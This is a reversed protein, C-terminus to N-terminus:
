TSQFARLKVLSKQGKAVPLLPTNPPSPLHPMTDPWTPSKLVVKGGEMGDRLAVELRPKPKVKDRQFETNEIMPLPSEYIRKRLLEVVEPSVSGKAVELITRGESDRGHVDAGNELLIRVVEPCGQRVAELFTPQLRYAKGTKISAGGKLLEVAASYNSRCQADSLATSGKREKLEADAGAELLLRILAPDGQCAAIHLPTQSDEAPENPSIGADLLMKTIGFDFKFVSWHLATYQNDPDQVALDCNPERMAARLQDSKGQKAFSWLPLDSEDPLQRRNTSGGDVDSDALFNVMETEGNQWAVDFPTRGIADTITKKAGSSLLVMAVELNGIRSAEHLPTKGLFGRVNPDLGALILLSIIESPTNEISCAHHLLSNSRRDYEKVDPCHNLISRVVPASGATVAWSMATEDDDDCLRIDGGYQLLLDVAELYGSQAALILPSAGTRNRANIDERVGKNMLLAELIKAEGKYAALALATYGEPDRINVLVGDRAILYKVADEMGKVAALQLATHGGEAPFTANVDVDPSINEAKLLVELASANNTFISEFVATSGRLSRINVDAGFSILKSVTKVHGRKCAYMLPTEGLESDRSNIDLLPMEEMLTKLVSDLGYFACVHLVNIGKRANWSTSTKGKSGVQWAAQSVSELRLPDNLFKRLIAQINPDDAVKQVHEGWYFSAYALFAFQELRADVALDEQIGTCPMSFASFNLYTMIALSFDLQEGPFLVQCNSEFYEQATRHVLRVEGQDSEAKLLSKTVSSIVSLDPQAAPNLAKDTTKIALAQLLEAVTLVRRALVVFALARKALAAKPPSENEEILKLIGSYIEGIETSLDELTDLVDQVTPQMRLSKLYLQALLFMGDAKATVTKPIKEMLTPDKRLHKGLTTAGIIGNGFRKADENRIGSDLQWRLNWEVYRKIEDDPARIKMSVETLERFEHDRDQSCTMGKCICDECLDSDDCITCSRYITLNTTCCGNCTVSNQHFIGEIPRSTILRSVKSVDLSQLDLLLESATQEECEDLGDVVIYVREFSQLESKIIRVIEARSPRKEM